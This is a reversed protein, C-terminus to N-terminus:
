EALDPRSDDQRQSWAVAGVGALAALGLVFLMVLPSRRGLDGVATSESEEASADQGPPGGSPTPVDPLDAPAAAAPSQFGTVRVLAPDSRLVGLSRGATDKMELVEFTVPVGGEPAISALYGDRTSALARKTEAIAAALIDAAAPQSTLDVAVLLKEGLQQALGALDLVSHLSGPKGRGDQFAVYARALVRAARPMDGLRVAEDAEAVAEELVAWEAAPLYSRAEVEGPALEYHLRALIATGSPGTPAAPLTLEAVGLVDDRLLNGEGVDWEVNILRLVEPSWRARVHYSGLGVQPIEEAVLPLVVTAGPAGEVDLSHLELRVAVPGTPSPAPLVGLGILLENTANEFHRSAALGDEQVGDLAAGRLRMAFIRALNVSPQGGPGAARAVAPGRSEIDAVLDMAANRMDRLQGARLLAVIAEAAQRWALVTETPAKPPGALGADPALRALEAQIYGVVAATAVADETSLAGDLDVLLVHLRDFVQRALDGVESEVAPRQLDLEDLAANFAADSQQWQGAAARDAVAQFAASLREARESATQAAVASVWAFALGGAVLLAGVRRGNRERGHRVRM